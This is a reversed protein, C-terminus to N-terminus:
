TPDAAPMVTTDYGHTTLAITTFFDTHAWQIAPALTSPIGLAFLADISTNQTVDATQM